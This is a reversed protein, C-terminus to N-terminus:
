TACAGVNIFDEGFFVDVQLQQYADAVDEVMVKEAVDGIGAVGSADDRM